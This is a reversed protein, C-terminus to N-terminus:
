KLGIERLREDLFAGATIDSYQKPNAEDVCCDLVSLDMSARPHMFFPMSLRAEQLKEPPPNVV